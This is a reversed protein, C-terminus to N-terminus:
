AEGIHRRRIAVSEALGLTMFTAVLSSAAASLYPMPIGTIPLVGMNMGANEVVHILLTAGLGVLLLTAYDDEAEMGIRLYRYIILLFLGLVVVVGVFGLEEGIVAFLFDTSAEPLFRLRAQTGESIGKGFWGGSGIAIRAQAANYGSGRLDQEQNVFTLLRERQYDKLGFFWLGVAGILALTPLIFWARRPWGAFLTLLLWTGLLVMASGFDPQLLVLGTYVGAALAGMGFTRWSSGGHEYRVYLGALYIVLTMKAIEVPQFSLGAIRFWGTTGRISEGFLLVSVLLAAGFLYILLGFSRFHRYDVLMIVFAVAVGLASAIFQKQFLFLDAPEQSIAIGYITVLGVATLTLAATLLTWDFREFLKALWRM